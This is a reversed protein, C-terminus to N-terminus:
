HRIRQDYFKHWNILDEKIFFLFGNFTAQSHIKIDTNEVMFAISNSCCSVTDSICNKAALDLINLHTLFQKRKKNTFSDKSIGCSFFCGILISAILSRM